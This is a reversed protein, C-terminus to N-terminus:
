AVAPAFRTCFRLYNIKDPQDRARFAALLLALQAPSPSLKAFELVARFQAATILGRNHRDFDKFFQKLDARQGAVRARYHELLEDLAAQDFDAPLAPAADRPPPKVLAKTPAAELRENGGDMAHVFGVWDVAGPGARPHAFAAAVGALQARSFRGSKFAADLASCFKAQTIWGHRLPDLRLPLPARARAARQM